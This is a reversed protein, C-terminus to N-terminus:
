VNVFWYLDRPFNELNEIGKTADEPGRKVRELRLRRLRPLYM